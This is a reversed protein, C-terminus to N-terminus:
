AGDGSGTLPKRLLAYFRYAPLAAAASALLVLAVVHTADLERYSLPRAVDGPSWASGQALYGAAGQEGLLAALAIALVTLPIIAATFPNSGAFSM